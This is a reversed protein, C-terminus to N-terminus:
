GGGPAGKYVNDKLYAYLAQFQKDNWGRAVPPM